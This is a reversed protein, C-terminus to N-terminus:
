NYMGVPQIANKWNEMCNLIETHILMCVHIYMYVGSPESAIGTAGAQLLNAYLNLAHLPGMWWLIICSHDGLCCPFHPNKALSHSALSAPMYLATNFKYLVVYIDSQPYIAM